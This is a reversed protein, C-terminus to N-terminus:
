KEQLVHVGQWAPPPPQRRFGKIRKLYVEAAPDGPQLRLVGRFCAEAQDWQCGRYGRLGEAFLALWEPPPDAPEGLLEFIKLPQRRGYVKVLDIERVLFRGAVLAFCDESLLTDTGYVKNVAELRSAV